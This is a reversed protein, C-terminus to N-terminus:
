EGLLSQTLACSGVQASSARRAWLRAPAPPVVAALAAAAPRADPLSPLLSQPELGGGPGSELAKAGTLGLAGLVWGPCVCVCVAMKSAAKSKAQMCSPDGGPALRLVWKQPSHAGVGTGTDLYACVAPWSSEGVTCGPLCPVPCTACQAPLLAGGQPAFFPQSLRPCKSRLQTQPWPQTCQLEM